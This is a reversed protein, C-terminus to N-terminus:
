FAVLVFKEDRFTEYVLMVDTYFEVFVVPPLIVFVLVVAAVLLVMLYLLVLEVFLVIDVFLECDLEVLAVFKILFIVFTVEEFLVLVFKVLLTVFVLEVITL